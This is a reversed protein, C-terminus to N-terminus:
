IGALFGLDFTTHDLISDALCLALFIHLSYIHTAVFLNYLRFWAHTPFHYM